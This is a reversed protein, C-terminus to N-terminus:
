FPRRAKLVEQSRLVASRYKLHFECVCKMVLTGQAVGTLIQKKKSHEIKRLALDLYFHPEVAM